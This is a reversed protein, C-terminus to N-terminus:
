KAVTIVNHPILLLNVGILVLALCFDASKLIGLICVYTYITQMCGPEAEKNQMGKPTKSTNGEPTNIRYRIYKM